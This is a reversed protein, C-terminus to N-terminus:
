SIAEMSALLNEVKELDLGLTGVLLGQLEPMDLFEHANSASVSGGYYFEWNIGQPLQAKLFHLVQDCYAISCAKGSGIAWKPEYAIAVQSSPRSILPQIQTFIEEQYTEVNSEGVCLIVKMGHSLAFALQHSIQESSIYLRQESHGLLVTPVHLKQLYEPGCAGTMAGLRDCTMVPSILQQPAGHLAM